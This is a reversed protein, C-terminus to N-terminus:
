SVAADREGGAGGEVRYIKSGREEEGEKGTVAPTGGGGWGGGIGRYTAMQVEGRGGWVFARRKGPTGEGQLSRLSSTTLGAGAQRNSAAKRATASLRTMVDDIQENRSVACCYLLPCPLSLM